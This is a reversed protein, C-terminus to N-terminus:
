YMARIFGMEKMILITVGLDCSSHVLRPAETSGRLHQYSLWKINVRCSGWSWGWGWTCRVTPIMDLLCFPVRRESGLLM